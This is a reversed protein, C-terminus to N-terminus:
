RWWPGHRYGAPQAALQQRQARDAAVALRAQRLIHPPVPSASPDSWRALDPKGTAAASPVNKM